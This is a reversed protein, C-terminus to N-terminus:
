SGVGAGACVGGCADAGGAHRRAQAVAASRVLWLVVVLALTLLVKHGTTSDLGVLRIGLLEM